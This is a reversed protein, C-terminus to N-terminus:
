LAREVAGGEAGPERSVENQRPSEGSGTTNVAPLWFAGDDVWPSSTLNQLMTGELTMTFVDVKVEAPDAPGYRASFLVLDGNAAFRPIYNAWKAHAGTQSLNRFGKGDRRITCIHWIGARGNHNGGAVPQSFVIQEDDPSWSPDYCGAPFFETAASGQGPDHIDKPNKGDSDMTRLVFRLPTTKLALYAISTGDHSWVPDSESTDPTKTLNTLQTGDRRVKYIDGLHKGKPVMFFVVWEGKPSFSDGEALNDRPTVRRCVKHELDIIWVNRLDEDGLGRPRTTDRDACSTVIYRRSSDVGILYHHAQTYTIRVPRTWARAAAYIEKRYRSVPRKASDRNSLFLFEAEEPLKRIDWVPDDPGDRSSSFSLVCFLAVLGIAAALKRAVKM